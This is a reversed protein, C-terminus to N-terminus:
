DALLKLAKQDIFYFTLLCIGFKLFKVRIGDRTTLFLSSMLILFYLIDRSLKLEIRDFPNFYWGLLILKTFPQTVQNWLIIELHGLFGFVMMLVVQLDLGCNKCHKYCCYDYSFYIQLFSSSSESIDSAFMIKRTKTKCYIEILELNQIPQACLVCQSFIWETYVFHLCELSCLMWWELELVRVHIWVRLDADWIQVESIQVHSGRCENCKSANAIFWFICNTM